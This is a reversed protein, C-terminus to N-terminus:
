DIQSSVRYEAPSLGNWQRFARAFSRGDSFGLQEAVDAVSRGQAIRDRALRNLVDSRLDRFQIGDEVLHRRLSAVSMGMAAAVKAQDSFGSAIHQAVRESLSRAPMAAPDIRDLAAAVVGYITRSALMRSREPDVAIDEISADYQLAFVPAHYRVPVGWFSLHTCGSPKSASRTRIVRLPIQQEISPLSLMLAHVYILLCETSLIIFADHHDLTYPFDRDDIVFSVVGSKKRVQNYRHGHIVNYSKAIVEMVEALTGCARLQSQVFESTGLMLPRMSVHMTEDGTQMAMQECIRFYDSLALSANSAPDLADPALGTSRLVNDPSLSSARMFELLPRISVCDLMPRNM